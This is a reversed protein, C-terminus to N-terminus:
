RNVAENHAMWARIWNLAHPLAVEPPMLEPHWAYEWEVSFAGRYHERALIEAAQKLPVEGEGVNTLRWYPRRGVGDKIQVYFIRGRLNRAGEDPAEGVSFANAIDWVAGLQPDTLERLIPVLTATRVFDDHHEIAIGVGVSHAHPLAAAFSELIRPYLSETRQGPALEGIFARVYRAGIAAALDLHRKLLDLNAARVASDDSVFTTYATVALSFLNADHMRARLAACAATSWTPRIHGAEGGRWEVGDYGMAQANAIVTAWSWHPCALTSFAIPPLM